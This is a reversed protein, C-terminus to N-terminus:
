INSNPYIPRAHVPFAGSLSVFTVFGARESASAREPRDCGIAGPNVPAIHARGLPSAHETHHWSVLGTYDVTMMLIEM